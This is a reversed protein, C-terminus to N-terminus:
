RVRSWSRAQSVRALRLAQWVPGQRLRGDLVADPNRAAQRLIPLHMMADMLPARAIKDLKLDQAGLRAQAYVDAAFTRISDPRGDVLPIRGAAELAPLAMLYRALAGGLLVRNLSKASEAPAGLIRAAVHLPIAYSAHLYSHLAAQDEHPDRYIDWQRATVAGDLAEAAPGDLVAHLPAAVEHARPPKGDAKEQLVDRWFQLRMEAIMAEQTIWPAKAVELCFAHIPFLVERAALPAVMTTRFRLPDGAEVLEACAQVSM